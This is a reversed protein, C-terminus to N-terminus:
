TPLPSPFFQNFDMLDFTLQDDIIYEPSKLLYSVSVDFKYQSFGSDTFRLEYHFPVNWRGKKMKIRCQIKLIGDIKHVFVLSCWKHAAAM